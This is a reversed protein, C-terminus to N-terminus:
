SSYLAGLSLWTYGFYVQHYSTTQDYFLPIVSDNLDSLGRLDSLGVVLGDCWAWQGHGETGCGCLEQDGGHVTLGGAGEAAQAVAEGCKGLLIKEQYGVQELRRSEVGERLVQEIAWFWFHKEEAM